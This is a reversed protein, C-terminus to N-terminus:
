TTDSNQQWTDIQTINYVHEINWIGEVCEKTTTVLRTRFVSTNMGPLLAEQIDEALDIAEDADESYAQVTVDAQIKYVGDKTTFYEPTYFYVAYPYTDTEAEYLWIPTVEALTATLAKGISDEMDRSNSTM